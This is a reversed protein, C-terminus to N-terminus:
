RLDKPLWGIDESEMLMMKAAQLKEKFDTWTKRDSDQNHLDIRILSTLGMASFLANNVSPPLYVANLPYWEGWRKLISGLAEHSTQNQEVEYVFKLGNSYIPRRIEALKEKRDEKQKWKLRVFAVLHGIMALVIGISIKLIDTWELM